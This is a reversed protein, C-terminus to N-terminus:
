DHYNSRLKDLELLLDNAEQLEPYGLQKVQKKIQELRDLLEHNYDIVVKYKKQHENEKEKSSALLQANKTEYM